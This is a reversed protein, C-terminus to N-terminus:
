LLSAGYRIAPPIVLAVLAVVGGGIVAAAFFQLRWLRQTESNIAKDLQEYYARVKSGLRDLGAERAGVLSGLM